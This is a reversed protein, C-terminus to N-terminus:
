SGKNRNNEDTLKKNLPAILAFNPQVTLKPKKTLRALQYGNAITQSFLSKL